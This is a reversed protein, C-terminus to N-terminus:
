SPLTDFGYGATSLALARAHLAERHRCLRGVGAGHRRVAGDCRRRRALEILIREAAARPRSQVCSLRYASAHESPHFSRPHTSPASHSAPHIPGLTHAAHCPRRAHQAAVPPRLLDAEAPLGATEGASRRMRGGGCHSSRHGLGSQPGAQRGPRLGSTGAVAESTYVRVAAGMAAARPTCAGGNGRFM